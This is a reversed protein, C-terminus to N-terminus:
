EETKASGALIEDINIGSEALQKRLESLTNQLREVKKVKGATKEDGLAEIRLGKKELEDASTSLKGAQFKLFEAKHRLFTGSSKFDVKKLPVHKMFDFGEPIPKEFKVDKAKPFLVRKKSPKEAKTDSKSGANKANPNVKTVEKASM